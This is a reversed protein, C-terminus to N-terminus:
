RGDAEDFLGPGPAAGPAPRAPGTAAGERLPLILEPGNNRVNNVLTEVPYAELGEDPPPVLLGNLEAVDELTPDLWRDWAEPPVVVPMRDHIPSMLDNAGTTVITFTRRIEQTEPDRWGSWLGAFALPGGDLRHILFPQRRGPDRRWEYFGDAPVLCRRRAFSDRFANSSALTEARANILRSGISADKAWHPILGWRYETLARREGKEVVVAVPDTPAVNFRGGPRDTLPEAEFWEALEHDSREQTFRGCM